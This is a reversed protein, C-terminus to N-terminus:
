WLKWFIIQVIFICQIIIIYMQRQLILFLIFFTFCINHSWARSILIQSFIQLTLSSLSLHYIIDPLCSQMKQRYIPWPSFTLRSLEKFPVEIPFLIQPTLTWQFSSAKFNNNRFIFSSKRHFKKWFSPLHFHSIHITHFFRHMCFTNFLANNPSKSFKLILNCFYLRRAFYNIVTRM